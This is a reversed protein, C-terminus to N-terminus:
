ERRPKSEATSGGVSDRLTQAWLTEVYPYIARASFREDFMSAGAEATARRKGEDGIADSLAQVLGEVSGPDILIGCGNGLVSPIGGVRTAIVCNSRALAELIFMPMAEDRSPLVAVASRALLAMLEDHTVAGPFEADPLDKPIDCTGDPPGAAVLRWGSGAGVKRWAQTLVDVGKRHSVSGGFVVLREKEQHEGNPVANPVLTIREAPAFKGAARMTLDSLVIIRDAARLVFSVLNPHKEAFDVFRSGHLHAVTGLGRARAVRLLLGERVFSGGQSLHIVVMNSRGSGLTMLKLIARIVLWIARLGRSGDRSTIVNVNAREFEWGLYGNVVQTMGGAIEGHRGVHWVNFRETGAPAQTRNDLINM